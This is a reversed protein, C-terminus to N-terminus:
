FKYSDPFERFFLKLRAHAAKIDNIKPMDVSTMRTFFDIMRPNGLIQKLGYSDCELNYASLM